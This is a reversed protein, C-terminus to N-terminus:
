EQKGYNESELFDRVANEVISDMQPLLGRGKLEFFLNEPIRAYVKWYKKSKNEM